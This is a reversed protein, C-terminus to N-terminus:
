NFESELGTRNIDWMYESDGPNREQTSLVPALKVLRAIVEKNYDIPSLESPRYGIEKLKKPRDGVIWDVFDQENKDLENLAEQVVPKSEEPLEIAGMEFLQPLSRLAVSVLYSDGIGYKLSSKAKRKTKDMLNKDDTLFARVMDFGRALVESDVTDKIPNKDKIKHRVTKPAKVEVLHLAEHLSTNLVSNMDDETTAGAVYGRNDRPIVVGRFTNIGGLDSSEMGYPTSMNYVAEDLLREDLGPILPEFDFQLKNLRETEAATNKEQLQSFMSPSHEQTKKILNRYEANSIENNLYERFIGQTYNQLAQPSLEKPM